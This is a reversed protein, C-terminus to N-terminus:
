EAELYESFALVEDTDWAYENPAKEDLKVLYMLGSPSNVKGGLVGTVAGASLFPHDIHKVRDGIKFKM